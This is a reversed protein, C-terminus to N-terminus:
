RGPARRRRQGPEARESAPAHGWEVGASVRSQSRVRRRAAGSRGRARQRRPGSRGRARGSGVQGVREGAAPM